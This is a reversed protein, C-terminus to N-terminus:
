FSFGEPLEKQKTGRPVWSLDLITFTPGSTKFIPVVEMGFKPEGLSLYSMLITAVGDFEINIFKIPKDLLNFAGSRACVMFTHVRATKKAIDTLDVVSNKALCDPCHIRFPMYITGTSSCDKADCRTALLKGQSLSEFFIAEGGYSHIYTMDRPNTIGILKWGDDANRIPTNPTLHHFTGKLKYQNNKVYVQGFMSM